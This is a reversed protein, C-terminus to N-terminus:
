DKRTQLGHANILRQVAKKANQEDVWVELQVERSINQRNNSKNLVTLPMPFSISQSFGQGIGGIVFANNDPLLLDQKLDNEPTGLTGDGIRSIRRRYIPIDSFNKVAIDADDACEFLASVRVAM